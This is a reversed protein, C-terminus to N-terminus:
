RGATLPGWASEQLVGHADGLAERMGQLKHGKQLSQSSRPGARPVDKVVDKPTVSGKKSSALM